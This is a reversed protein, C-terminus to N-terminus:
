FIIQIKIKKTDIKLKFMDISNFFENNLFWILISSVPSNDSISTNTPLSGFVSIKQKCKKKRILFKNVM